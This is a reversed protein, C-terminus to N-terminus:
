RTTLLNTVDDRLAALTERAARRTEALDEPAPAPTTVELYAKVKPETGSLRVIVRIREGSLKLAQAEPLEEATVSIGALTTPPEARLREM